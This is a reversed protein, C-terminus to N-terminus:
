QVIKMVSVVHEGRLMLQPIHRVCLQSNRRTKIVRITSLGIMEAENDNNVKLPRKVCFEKGGFRKRNFREDVDILALNWHKDFAVLNAEMEGKIGTASRTVVKIRCNDRVYKALQAMPGQGGECQKAMYTVVNSRKAGKGQIPMQEPTFNRKLESKNVNPAKKNSSSSTSPSSLFSIFKEVNDFVPASNTLAFRPNYLAEIPDFENSSSNLKESEEENQRSMKM